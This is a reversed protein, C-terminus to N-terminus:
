KPPLHYFSGGFERMVKGWLYTNLEHLDEERPIAQLHLGAMEDTVGPGWLVRKPPQNPNHPNAASNDYTLEMELRTDAPLHLPKSYRYQDQWNFDWDDIKLLEIRKGNPLIAWGEVKRCVYHAHPIIGIAEVDVPLTFHDHVQYHTEGAPIDIRRSTLGIDVLHRTPPGPAFYLAISSQDEEPKGTPHYHIQIVMDARRPLWVGTGEPMAMPVNGPSWGGVASTWLTGISGFCPYSGSAGALQRAVGSSETFVLAHHVVRRNSPRFEFARIYRDSTVHSPVVFCQYRDPGDAAIAFPAPLKVILDPQGLQWESPFQPIPPAKQAGGEPAGAQAWRALTAIEAPTLRREYQFHGGAPKWPPMYRSATVDAIQRARKAADQFSLLPFPAVEGEHHCVACHRYLIPAVDRTFTPAASL